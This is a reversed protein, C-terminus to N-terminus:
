PSGRKSTSLEFAPIERGLILFGSFRPKKKKKKKTIQIEM